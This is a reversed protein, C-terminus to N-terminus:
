GLAELLGRLVDDWDAGSEPQPADPNAKWYGMVDTILGRLTATSLSLLVDDDPLDHYLTRAMAVLARDNIVGRRLRSMLAEHDQHTFESWHKARCQRGRIYYSFAAM